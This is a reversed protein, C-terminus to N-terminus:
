EGRASARQRALGDVFGSIEQVVPARDRFPAALAMLIGSHGVDVLPLYRASAGAAVLQRTLEESNRPDVTRDDTGHILLAPPAARNVFTIPRASDPNKATEFIPRIGAYKLPDFVYPGALGILGSIVDQPVAVDDLYRRDLALLAAIHAGASHGAVVIRDPDGGRSAIEGHVWGIAAAADEVFRPFQVEPYLRYDPIVVLYGQSALTQGVFRYHRRSGTKWSGGYVFVIVAKSRLPGVPRYIDLKQRAAAGYAIGAERQYGTSPVLQDLLVLPSCAALM